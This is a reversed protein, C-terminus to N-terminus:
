RANRRLLVPIAEAQFDVDADFGNVMGELVLLSLLPFAFEPAAHLGHRRQLEFLKAAFAGLHFDKAHAGTVDAVLADLDGRFGDLDRGRPLEAASEIVIAACRRGHGHAM